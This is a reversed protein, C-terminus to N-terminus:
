TKSLIATRAHQFEPTNVGAYISAIADAMHEAVGKIKGRHSPWIVEPHAKVAAGIMQQKTAKKTGSLAQKCALPDVQIITKWYAAQLSGLVGCCIGYSKMAAASQSGLPVEAFIYQAKKFWPVISSAITFSRNVDDSNTRVTKTTSKSTSFVDIHEVVLEGSVLDLLGYAIGWNALSPDMGLVPVRM